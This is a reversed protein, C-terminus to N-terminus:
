KAREIDLYDLKADVSRKVERLLNQVLEEISPRLVDICNEDLEVYSAFVRILNRKDPLWSQVWGWVVVYLKTQLPVFYVAGHGWPVFDDASWEIRAVCNPYGNSSLRYQPVPPDFTHRVKEMTTRPEQVYSEITHLTIIGLREFHQVLPAIMNKPWYSSSGVDYRPTIGLVGWREAGCQLIELALPPLAKLEDTRKAVLRKAMARAQALREDLAVELVPNQAPVIARQIRRAISPSGAQAGYMVPTQRQAVERMLESVKSCVRDYLTGCQVDEEAQWARLVEALAYTYYGHQLAPAEYSNEGGMCAALTIAGELRSGDDKVARAFEAANPSRDGATRAGLGSHCADFIRVTTLGDARMAEALRSISIGGIEPVGLDCDPLMLYGENNVGHGHGAFYFLMTDGPNTRAVFGSILALVKEANWENEPTLELADVFEEEYDCHTVLADRLLKMDAVCFQLSPLVRYKDCAMLFAYRKSM